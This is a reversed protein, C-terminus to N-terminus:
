VLATRNKQSCHWDVQSSGAMAGIGGQGIGLCTSFAIRLIGASERGSILRVISKSANSLHTRRCGFSLAGPDSPWGRSNQLYPGVASRSSYQVAILAYRLPSVGETPMCSHAPATAPYMGFFSDAKSIDSNRGTAHM